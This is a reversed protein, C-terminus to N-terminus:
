LNSSVDNDGGNLAPLLEDQWELVLEDHGEGLNNLLNITATPSLCLMLKQLRRFVQLLIMATITCLPMIALM